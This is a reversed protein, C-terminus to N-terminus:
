DKKNQTSARKGVARSIVEPWKSRQELAKLPEGNGVFYTPPSKAERGDSGSKKEAGHVM